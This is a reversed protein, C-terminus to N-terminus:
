SKGILLPLDSVITIRLFNKPQALNPSFQLAAAIADPGSTAWLLGEL